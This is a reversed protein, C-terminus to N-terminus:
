NFKSIAFQLDVDPYSGPECLDNLILPILM